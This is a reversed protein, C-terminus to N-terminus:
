WQQWIVLDMWVNLLWHVIIIPWISRTALAVASTAPGWALTGWLEPLPKGLHWTTYALMPILIRWDLNALLGKEGAGAKRAPLLYMGFLLYGRFMFEIAVFFPLYGIEYAVFQGIGDFDRFFPYTAAMAPDHGYLYFTGFSVVFLGIACMLALRRLGPPPLGLGFDRLRRKFVCRIVIAPIGVVLLAGVWFSLWEQDWPIGPIIGARATPDSGPGTWGDWVAGLLELNGHYGWLMLAVIGSGLLIGIPDRFPAVFASWLLRALDNLKPPDVSVSGPQKRDQTM